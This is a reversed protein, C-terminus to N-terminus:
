EPESEEKQSSFVRIAGNLGGFKLAEMARDFLFCITLLLKKWPPHDKPPDIKQNPDLIGALKQLMQEPQISEEYQTISFKETLQIANEPNQIFSVKPQSQESYEELQKNECTNLILIEKNQNAEYIEKVHLRGVFAVCNQQMTKAADNMGRQRQQQPSGRLPDASSMKLDSYNELVHRQIFPTKHTLEKLELSSCYNIDLSETLCHKIGLKLCALLIMITYLMSSQSTHREGCLILLPKEDKTAKDLSQKIQQFIFDCKEKLSQQLLTETIASIEKSIDIRNQQGVHFANYHCIRINNMIHKNLLM